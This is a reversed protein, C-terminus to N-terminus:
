KSQSQLQRTSWPWPRRQATRGFDRFTRAHHYGAVVNELPVEPGISSSTFFLLQQGGGAYDLCWDVEAIVDDVTGFPLTRTINMGAMFLQKEGQSSRKESIMWPDVGCEYQFGQFGSFGASIMDDVNPMVNGDCHHIVRIGAEVLPALSYRAHPWYHERLFSPSCMPGRNDCIDHGCFLIPPLAYERYLKVIIENRARTLIADEWYIRGVAEPYLATAALFAEYGYEFYLSFNAVLEWHNPLYVMDGWRRRIEDWCKRYNAEVEAAKFKAALVKAPTDPIQHARKLLMEPLMRKFQDELVHGTRVQELETPVIPSIMADVGLARHAKLVGALPDSLYEEPTLEALKALNRVGHFWGGILPVRDVEQGRALRTLREQVTLPHVLNIKLSPPVPDSQPHKNSITKVNTTPKSSSNRM